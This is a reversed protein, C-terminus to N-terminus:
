HTSLLNVILNKLNWQTILHPKGSVVAINDVNRLILGCEHNWNYEINM